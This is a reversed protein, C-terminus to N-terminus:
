SNPTLRPTAAKKQLVRLSSCFKLFISPESTPIEPFRPNQPRSELSQTIPIPPALILLDPNWFTLKWVHIDCGVVYM